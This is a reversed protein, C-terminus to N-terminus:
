YRHAAEEESLYYTVVTRVRLLPRLLEFLRCIDCGFNQHEQYGM